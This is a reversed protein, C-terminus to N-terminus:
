FIVIGISNIAIMEDKQLPLQKTGCTNTLLSFIFVDLNKKRHMMLFRWFVRLIIHCDEMELCVEGDQRSGEKIAFM